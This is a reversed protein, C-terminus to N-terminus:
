WATVRDHLAYQAIYLVLTNGQGTNSRAKGRVSCGTRKGCGKAMKNSKCNTGKQLTVDPETSGKKGVGNKGRHSSTMM